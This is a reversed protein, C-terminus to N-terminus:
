TKDKENEEGVFCWDDALMDEYEPTWNIKIVNMKVLSISDYNIDDRYNYIIRGDLIDSVNKTLQVYQEKCNWAKRRLKLGRKIYKIAEDFGFVTQGGLVTCNGNGDVAKQQWKDCTFSENVLHGCYNSWPNFCVYASITYSWEIYNCNECRDPKQM